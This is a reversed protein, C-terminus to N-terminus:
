LLQLFTLLCSGVFGGTAITDEDKVLKVAEEASMVKVPM